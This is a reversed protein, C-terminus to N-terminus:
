TPITLATVIARGMSVCFSNRLWLAVDKPGKIGATAKQYNEPRTTESVWYAPSRVGMGTSNVLDRAASTKTALRRVNCHLAQSLLHATLDLFHGPPGDYKAIQTRRGSADLKEDSVREPLARWVSHARIGSLQGHFMSGGFGHEAGAM